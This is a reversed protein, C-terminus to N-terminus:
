KGPLKRRLLERLQDAEGPAFDRKPLLLFQNPATYVMFMRSNEAWRIFMSWNRQSRMNPSENLIGEESVEMTSIQNLYPNRKFVYQIRMRPFVFLLLAWFVALALLPLTTRYARPNGVLILFASGTCILLFLYGIVRDWQRWIRGKRHLRHAELYDELTYRCLFSM